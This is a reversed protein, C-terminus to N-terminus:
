SIITMCLFNCLEYESKTWITVEAVFNNCEKSNTQLLQIEVNFSNIFKLNRDFNTNTIIFALLM